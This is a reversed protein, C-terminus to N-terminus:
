GDLIKSELLKSGCWKRFGEWFTDNGSSHVKDISQLRLLYSVPIFPTKVLYKPRPTSSFTCLKKWKPWWLSQHSWCFCCNRTIWRWFCGRLRQLLTLSCVCIFLYIFHMTKILTSFNLGNSLIERCEVPNM